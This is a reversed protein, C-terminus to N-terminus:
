GNGNTDKDMSKKVMATNIIFFIVIALIPICIGVAALENVFFKMLTYNSVGIMFGWLIFMADAVISYALSKKKIFLICLLIFLLLLTAYISHSIVYSPTEYVMAHIKRIDGTFIKRVYSAPINMIWASQQTFAVLKIITYIPLFGLLVTNYKVKGKFLLKIKEM